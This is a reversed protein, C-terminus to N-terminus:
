PGAGPPHLLLPWGMGSWGPEGLEWVGESGPSRTRQTKTVDLRQRGVLCLEASGWSRATGCLFELNNRSLSAWDLSQSRSRQKQGLARTRSARGGELRALEHDPAPPVKEFCLHTRVQPPTLSSPPLFGQEVRPFFPGPWVLLTMGLVQAAGWSDAVQPQLHVLWGPLLYYLCNTPSDPPSEGQGWGRWAGEWLGSM